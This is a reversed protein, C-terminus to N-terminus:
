VRLTLGLKLDHLSEVSPLRPEYYARVGYFGLIACLLGAAIVGALILVIRLYLNLSFVEPAM